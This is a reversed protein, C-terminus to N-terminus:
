REVEIVPVSVSIATGAGPASEFDVSGALARVRQRLATLGFGDSTSPDFGAGDDRVDLVIVDEMYSLTVDVRRAEAHRGVNSLAEQAARLVTVEVESHVPLPTGTVTFTAEVGYQERWTTVTQRVADGLRADQLPGPRLAEISRRVEVLSTRALRRATDLRDRVPGALPAPEEVAELQTVIGTLGQAVTDHIERAMRAREEAIGTERAQEVLMAHLRANEAAMAVLESNTERRRIAEREMARIMGGILAALPTVVALNLLTTRVDTGPLVLWPLNAAVVGLYAAWGPLTVFALVYCAPVFLLFADNRLVLVVTFALLGVYYLAMAWANRGCWQPHAVVFWWHWVALGVAIGSTVLRHEVPAPDFVMSVACTLLLLGFPALAWAHNWRREHRLGLQEETTM